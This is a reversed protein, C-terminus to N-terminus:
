QHPGTCGNHLQLVEVAGLRGNDDVLVGQPDTLPLGRAVVLREILLYPAAENVM